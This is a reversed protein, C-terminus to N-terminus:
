KSLPNVNIAISITFIMEYKYIFADSKLVKMNCVLDVAYGPLNKQFIVCASMMIIMTSIILYNPINNKM